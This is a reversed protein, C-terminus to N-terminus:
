RGNVADEFGTVAVCRTEFANPDFQYDLELLDEFTAGEPVEIGKEEVCELMAPYTRRMLDDMWEVIVASNQYAMEVYDQERVECASLMDLVAQADLDTVVVGISLYVGGSDFGEDISVPGTMGSERICDVVAQTAQRYDEENVDRGEAAANELIDLQAESAGAAIAEQMVAAIAPPANSALVIDDSGSCAALVATGWVLLVPGVLRKLHPM